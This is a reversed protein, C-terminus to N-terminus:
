NTNQQNEFEKLLTTYSTYQRSNYNVKQFFKEIKTSKLGSFLRTMEASFNFVGKVVAEEPSSALNTWTKTQESYATGFDILTNTHDEPMYAFNPLLTDIQIVGNFQLKALGSLTNLVFNKSHALGLQLLLDFNDVGRANPIYEEIVAPKGNFIGTKYINPFFPKESSMKLKARLTRLNLLIAANTAFNLFSSEQLNIKLIEGAWLNNSQPNIVMSKTSHGFFSKTQDIEDPYVGIDKSFYKFLLSKNLESIQYEPPFKDLM